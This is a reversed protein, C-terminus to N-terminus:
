LVPPCRDTPAESTHMRRGREKHRSCEAKGKGTAQAPRSSRTDVMSTLVRVLIMVTRVAMLMGTGDKVVATGEGGREIMVM